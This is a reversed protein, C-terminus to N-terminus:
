QFICVKFIGPMKAVKTPIKFFAQRGPKALCPPVFLGFENCLVRLYGLSCERPIKKITYKSFKDASSFIEAPLQSQNGKISCLIDTYNFYDMM